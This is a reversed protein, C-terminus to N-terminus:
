HCHGCGCSGVHDHHHGGCGDHGGCGGECDECGCHHQEIHKIFGEVEKDNALRAEIVKGKFTLDKGALPHNLDMKVKDDMVEVVKGLFHNGDENQLPVIAGKFINEHDFHNNITFISKDIDIVREAVYEGYAQDQPLTFEFDDGTQLKETEKEFADLTMGFGTLYSFPREETAKEIVKDEGNETTHLEYSVVIYKHEIENM